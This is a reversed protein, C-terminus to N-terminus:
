FQYVLMLGGKYLIWEGSKNFKKADDYRTQNSIRYGKYYAQSSGGGLFLELNWKKYFEFTYGVTMGYMINYGKQYFDTSWYNYKQMTYSSGGVHTGLFFGKNFSQTYYRFEPFFMIFKQPAHNFSEWFSATADVQFSTKSGIKIEYSFNPIGLLASAINGKIKNQSNLTLITFLLFFFLIFIKKIKVKLDM